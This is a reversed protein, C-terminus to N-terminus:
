TILIVSVSPFASNGETNKKAKSLALFNKLITVRKM